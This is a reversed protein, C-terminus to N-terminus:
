QIYSSGHTEERTVLLLLSSGQSLLKRAMLPQRSFAWVELSSPKSPSESVVSEELGRVLRARFYKGKEAAFFEHYSKTISTETRSLRAERGLWHRQPILPHRSEHVRNSISSQGGGCSFKAWPFSGPTAPTM